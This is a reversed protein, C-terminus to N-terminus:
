ECVELDVLEVSARHWALVQLVASADPCAPTSAKIHAMMLGSPAHQCGLSHALEHSVIRVTDSEYAGRRLYINDGGIRDVWGVADPLEANTETTEVVVKDCGFEGSVAVVRRWGRLARDWLEVAKEADEVRDLPLNICVTITPESGSPADVPPSLSPGCAALACLALTIRPPTMSSLRRYLVVGRLARVLVHVVPHRRRHLGDRWHYGRRVRLGCLCFLLTSRHM